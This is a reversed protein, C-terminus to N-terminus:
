FQGLLSLAASPGGLDLHGLMLDDLAIPAGPGPGDRHMSLGIAQAAVYGLELRIGIGFPPRSAAFLDLAAGASAAAGWAAGTQAYAGGGAIHLRAREAGLSVRASATILRHLQYRAALGGTLGLQRLETAMTQFMTGDATGTTLGAEAWLSLRPLPALGLDRAAGISVGALNDGTVANASSSRLARAQGGFSLENRNTDAAAGRAAATAAAAAALACGLTRLSPRTTARRM